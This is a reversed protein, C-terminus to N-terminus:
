LASFQKLIKLGVPGSKEPHFQCGITNGLEVIAPVEVGGLSYYSKIVSAEVPRSMYSHVFYVEGNFDFEKLILSDKPNIVEERRLPHWGIQPIKIGTSAPISRRMSEVSGKIIGLGETVEYEESREFLMQMGLCIGLIPSNKEALSKVEDSIGSQNLFKMAGPFAGVGPIVVKGARKILNPDDTLFADINLYHFARQVSLLNGVGYDVIAIPSNKM